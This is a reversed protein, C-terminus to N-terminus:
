ECADIEVKFNDLFFETKWDQNVNAWFGVYVWGNQVWAPEIDVFLRDDTSFWRHNRLIGSSQGWSSCRDENCEYRENLNDRNFM